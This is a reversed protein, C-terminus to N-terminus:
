RLSPPHSSDKRDAGPGMAGAIRDKPMPPRCRTMAASRTDPIEKRDPIVWCIDDDLSVAAVHIALAKTYMAGVQEDWLIHGKPVPDRDRCWCPRKGIQAPSCRLPPPSGNWGMFQASGDALRTNEAQWDAILGCDTIPRSVVSGAAIQLEVEQLQTPAV